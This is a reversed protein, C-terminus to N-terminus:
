VMTNIHQLKPALILNSVLTIPMHEQQILRLCIKLNKDNHNYKQSPHYYNSPSALYKGVLADAYAQKLAQYYEL